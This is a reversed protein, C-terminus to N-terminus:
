EEAPPLIRPLMDIMGLLLLSYGHGYSEAERLIANEGETVSEASLIVEYSRKGLSAGHDDKGGVLAYLLRLPYPSKDVTEPILNWRSGFSFAGYSSFEDYLHVMGEGEAYISGQSFGLLTYHERVEEQSLGDSLDYVACNERVWSLMNRIDLGATVADTGEFDEMCVLLFPRVYGYEIMRDLLRKALVTHTRGDDMQLDYGTRLAEKYDGLTGPWLFVVDYNQSEDYGAPYYIGAHATRPKEGAGNYKVEVLKGEEAGRLRSLRAPPCAWADDTEEEAARAPVAALLLAFALAALFCRRGWTNNERKGRM